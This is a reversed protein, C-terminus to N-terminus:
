ETLNHNIQDLNKVSDKMKQELTQQDKLLTLHQKSLFDILKVTEM